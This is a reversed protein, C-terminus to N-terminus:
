VNGTRAPNVKSSVQLMGAAHADASSTKAGMPGVKLVDVGSFDHADMHPILRTALSRVTAQFAPVGGPAANIAARLQREENPDFCHADALSFRELRRQWRSRRGCGGEGV